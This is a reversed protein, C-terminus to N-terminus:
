NKGVMGGPGVLLEGCATPQIGTDASLMTAIMVM